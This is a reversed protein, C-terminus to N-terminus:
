PFIIQGLWHGTHLIEALTFALEIYLLSKPTIEFLITKYPKKFKNKLHVKSFFFFFTLNLHGEPFALLNECFNINLDSFDSASVEMVGLTIIATKTNIFTLVLTKQM